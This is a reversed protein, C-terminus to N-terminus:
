GHRARKLAHEEERHVADALICLGQITIIDMEDVEKPTFRFEKAMKFYLAIANLEADNTTSGRVLNM